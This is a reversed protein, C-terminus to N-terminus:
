LQETAAVAQQGSAAGKAIPDDGGLIPATSCGTLMAACALYLSAGKRM